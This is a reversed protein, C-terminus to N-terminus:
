CLWRCRSGSEFSSECEGDRLVVESGPLGLAGVVMGGCECTDGGRELGVEVVWRVM